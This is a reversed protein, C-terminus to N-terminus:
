VENLPQWFGLLVVGYQHHHIFEGLMCVKYGEGVRGSCHLNNDMVHFRNEFEM